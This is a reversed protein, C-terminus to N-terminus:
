RPYVRLTLVIQSVHLFFEESTTFNNQALIVILDLNSLCKVRSELNGSLKYYTSLYPAKIILAVRGM